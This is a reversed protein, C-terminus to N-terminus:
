GALHPVKPGANVIVDLLQWNPSALRQLVRRMAREGSVLDRHLRTLQAATPKGLLHCSFLVQDELTERFLQPAPDTGYGVATSSRDEVPM